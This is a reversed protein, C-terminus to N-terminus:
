LAVVGGQPCGEVSPFQKADRREKIRRRPPTSAPPKKGASPTTARPSSLAQVTVRKGSPM